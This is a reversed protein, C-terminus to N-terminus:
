RVEKQKTQLEQIAEIALREYYGQKWNYVQIKRKLLEASCENKLLKDVRELEKDIKEITDLQELEIFKEKEM